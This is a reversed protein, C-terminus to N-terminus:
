CADSRYVFDRLTGEYISNLNLHNYDSPKILTINKQYNVIGRLLYSVFSSCVYLDKREYPINLLMLPINIFSYRYKKPNRLFKKLRKMVLTYNKDTVELDYIVCKTEPHRALVGEDVSERTFGAVWPFWVIRRSFSYMEKCGDTLAISVHNYEERTFLRLFKSIRTNTNTLVIYIHKM